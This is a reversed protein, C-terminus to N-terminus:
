LIFRMAYSNMRERQLLRVQIPSDSFRQQRNMGDAGFGDEVFNGGDGRLGASLINGYLPFKEAPKGKTYERKKKKKELILM